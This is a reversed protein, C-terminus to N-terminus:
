NGKMAQRLHDRESSDMNVFMTLIDVEDVSTFRYGLDRRMAKLLSAVTLLIKSAEPTAGVNMTRFNGYQKVVDDSAYLIADFAAETSQRIMEPTIPIEKESDRNKIAILLIDRWPRLLNSYVERKKDYLRSRSEKWSEYFRSALFGIAAAIFPLVTPPTNWFLYAVGYIIGCVIVITFTLSIVQKM